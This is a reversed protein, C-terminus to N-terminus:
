SLMRVGAHDAYVLASVWMAAACYGAVVDTPYHVGLYIRSVGILLILVAAASWVSLRAAFSRIRTDILGALIGYFCFSSLAHGSPFSYSKPMPAFFPVPRARHFLLKLTFDLVVSGATGAALWAAARKWKALLFGVSFLIFLTFLVRPSGLLTVFKMVSTMRASSYQHIFGRVRADFQNTQGEFVEEALWSFLALALVASVLSGALVPAATWKSIKAQPNLLPKRAREYYIL